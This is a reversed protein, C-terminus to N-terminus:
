VRDSYGHRIQEFSVRECRESDSSALAESPDLQPTLDGAELLLQGAKASLAKRPYDDVRPNGRRPSRRPDCVEGLELAHAVGEGGPDGISAGGQVLAVVQLDPVALQQVAHELIGGAV